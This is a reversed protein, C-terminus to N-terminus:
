KNKIIKEKLKNELWKVYDNKFYGNGYDIELNTEERYLQKIDM